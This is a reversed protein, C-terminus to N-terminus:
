GFMVTGAPNARSSGIPIENKPRANESPVRILIAYENSCAVLARLVGFNKGVAAYVFLHGPCFARSMQQNLRSRSIKTLEKPEQRAAAKSAAATAATVAAVATAEAIAAATVAAIVVVATVVVDAVAVV